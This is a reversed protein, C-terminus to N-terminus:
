LEELTSRRVRREDVALAASRAVIAGISLESDEVNRLAAAVAEAEDGHRAVGVVDEGDVAVVHGDNLDVADVM